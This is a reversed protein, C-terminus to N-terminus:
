GAATSPSTSKEPPPGLSKFKNKMSSQDTKKKKSRGVTKVRDELVWFEEKTVEDFDDHTALADYFDLLKKRAVKELGGGDKVDMFKKTEVCLNVYLSKCFFQGLESSKGVDFINKMYNWVFMFNAVNYSDSFHVYLSEESKTNQLSPTVEFLQRIHLECQALVSHKFNKVAIMMRTKANIFESSGEAIEGYVEEIVELYVPQWAHFLFSTWRMRNELVSFRDDASDDRRKRKHSTRTAQNSRIIQLNKCFEDQMSSYFEPDDDASVGDPPDNESSM